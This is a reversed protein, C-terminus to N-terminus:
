DTCSGNDYRWLGNYKNPGYNKEAPERNYIKGWTWSYTKGKEDYNSFIEIHGNKVLIDGRIIDEVNLENMDYWTFGAEGIKAAGEGGPLYAKSAYGPTNSDFFGAQVLCSWVFSSCDDGVNKGNLNGELNYTYYQRGAATSPYNSENGSQHCYTKVNGVYWQAVQDATNTWDDITPLSNAKEEPNNEFPEVTVRIMVIQYNPDLMRAAGASPFLINSDNVYTYSAAESPEEGNLDVLGVPNGWCYGYRNLTFPATISGRIVDEASFRGEKPRYERAQAYYTGATEDYQYGTYGFPQISEQSGKGYLPQNEYLPGGFEDYGYSETLEGAEDALRIPSGLEDQLYYQGPEQDDGM